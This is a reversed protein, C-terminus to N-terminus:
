RWSFRTSSPLQAGGVQHGVRALLQWNGRRGGPMPMAVLEVTAAIDGRCLYHTTLTEGSESQGSFVVDARHCQALTAVWEPVDFSTPSASVLM